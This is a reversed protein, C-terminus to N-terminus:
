LDRGLAPSHFVVERFTGDIDGVYDGATGRGHEAVVPLASAPCGADTLDSAEVVPVPNIPAPAIPVIGLPNAASTAPLPTGFARAHRAADSLPADLAPQTAVSAPAVFPLVALATVALPVVSAMWRRQHEASPYLVRLRVALWVLGVSAVQIAANTWPNGGAEHAVLGGLALALVVHTSYAYLANQGLPLVLWGLGRRIPEWCRSTLLFLFGFVLVSALIRGVRVYAKAFLADELEAQSLSTVHSLSSQLAQLVAPQSAYALILLAVGIASALLLPTRASERVVAGIRQRHYGIAMATFFLVQWASLHFLNNGAITWPLETQAPFAQFGLWTVWSVGLLIWTQGECLLFLAIPAALMLLVYLALVDVLYYTQHLSLIAWVVELPSSEELGAAWPLHLLESVTLMVLTLGVALVYLTWARALLRRFATALGQREAIRRYVLGVTLGSLVIFGEAASTYFRNGGTLLYLVSPGGLHDVVMALVALGRLLDIRLDRAEQGQYAWRRPLRSGVHVRPM